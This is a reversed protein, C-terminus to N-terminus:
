PDHNSDRAHAKKSFPLSLQLWITQELMHCYITVASHCGSIASLAIYAKFLYMASQLDTYMPLLKALLPTAILGWLKSVM